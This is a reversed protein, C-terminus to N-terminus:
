WYRSELDNVATMHLVAQEAADLKCCLINREFNLQQEHFMWLHSHQTNVPYRQKASSLMDSAMSHLGQFSTSDMFPM